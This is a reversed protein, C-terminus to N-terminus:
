VSFSKVKLWVLWIRQAGEPLSLSAENCPKVSKVGGQLQQTINQWVLSSHNRRDSMQYFFLLSLFMNAPRLWPPVYMMDSASLMAQGINSKQYFPVIPLSNCIFITISHCNKIWTYLDPCFSFFFVSKNKNTWGYNNALSFMLILIRVMELGLNEECISSILKYEECFKASATLKLCPM